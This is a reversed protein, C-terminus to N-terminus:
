RHELDHLSGHEPGVDDGGGDLLGEGSETGRGRLWRGFALPQPAFKPTDLGFEAAEGLGDGPLATERGEDLRHSIPLTLVIAQPGVQRRQVLEGLNAQKIQGRQLAIQPRLEVVPPTEQHTVNLV